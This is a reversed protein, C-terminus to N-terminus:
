SQKPGFPIDRPELWREVFKDWQSNSDYRPRGPLDISFDDEPAKTIGWQQGNLKTLLTSDCRWCHPHLQWAYNGLMCDLSVNAETAELSSLMQSFKWLWENWNEEIQKYSGGFIIVPLSYQSPSGGWFINTFPYIEDFNFEAITNMADQLGLQQQERYPRVGDYHRGTNRLQIYGNVLSIHGM